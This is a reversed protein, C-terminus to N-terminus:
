PPLHAQLRYNQNLKLTANVDSFTKKNFSLRYAGAYIFLRTLKAGTINMNVQVDGNNDVFKFGKMIEELEAVSVPTTANVQRRTEARSGLLEDTQADFALIYDLQVNFPLNTEANFMDQETVWFSCSGTKQEYDRAFALTNLFILSTFLLIKKM